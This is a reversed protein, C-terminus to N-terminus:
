REYKQVQSELLRRRIRIIQNLYSFINAISQKTKIHEMFTKRQQNSFGMYDRTMDRFLEYYPHGTNFVIWDRKYFYFLVTKDRDGCTDPIQEQNCAAIGHEADIIELNM